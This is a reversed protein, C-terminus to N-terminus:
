DEDDEVEVDETVERSITTTLHAPIIGCTVLIDCDYDEHVNVSAPSLKSFRYPCTECKSSSTIQCWANIFALVTQVQNLGLTAQLSNTVVHGLQVAREVMAIMMMPCASDATGKPFSCNYLIGNDLDNVFQQRLHSVVSTKWMPVVPGPSRKTIATRVTNPPVRDEKDDKIFSVPIPKLKHDLACEATEDRRRKM